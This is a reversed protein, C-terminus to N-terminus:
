KQRKRGIIKIISKRIRFKVRINHNIKLKISVRQARILSRHNTM